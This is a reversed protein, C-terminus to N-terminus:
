KNFFKLIKAQLKLWDKHKLLPYGSYVENGPISKTVGGRAAITAGDGIELHGAVASQGGMTVNQGLKTSGSIGVQAVLITQKGIECNHGIQVLNDIKSGSKVITQGFVARDITSNAGIEVDDELVVRGNHYIKIHAGTKTHAYGFGDGGVVVGAHIICSKGIITDNYITVNPYIISGEGITVNEGIFAGSLITVNNAIKTGNGIHVGDQVTASKPIVPKTKSAILENKFYKSAYAMKLYPNDCIIARSNKPLLSAFEAKVLVAGASTKKLSEIYKKNNFFSIESNKADNLTNIAEVEFDSEDYQLKLLKTLEKLKM